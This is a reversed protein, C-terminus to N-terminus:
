AIAVGLRRLREELNTFTESVDTKYQLTLVGGLNSPLTADQHQIVILRRTSRAIGVALGIEMVVNPRPYRSRGVQDDPTCMAVVASAGKMMDLLGAVLEPLALGPHITLPTIGRNTFFEAVAQNAAKDHGYAFFVKEPYTFVGRELLEQRIEGAMWASDLAKSKIIVNHGFRSSDLYETFNTLIFIPTCRRVPDASETFQRAVREGTRDAQGERSKENVLDTIVCDWTEGVARRIFQDYHREVVTEIGLDDLATALNDFYTEPEDDWALARIM